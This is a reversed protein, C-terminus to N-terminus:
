DASRSARRARPEGSHRREVRGAPGRMPCAGTELAPMEPSPAREATADVEEGAPRCLGLCNEFVPM